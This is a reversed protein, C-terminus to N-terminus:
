ESYKISHYSVVRANQSLLVHTRSLNRKQGAVLHLALSTCRKEFLPVCVTCTRLPVVPPVRTSFQCIDAYISVCPYLYLLICYLYPYPPYKTELFLFLPYQLKLVASSAPPRESGNLKMLRCLYPPQRNCVCAKCQVDHLGGERRGGERRVEEGGGDEGGGGGGGEVM